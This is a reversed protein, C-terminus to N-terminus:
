ERSTELSLDAWKPGSWDARSPETGSAPEALNRDSRQAENPETETARQLYDPYWLYTHVPCTCQAVQLPEM